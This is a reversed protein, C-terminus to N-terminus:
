SGGAKDAAMQRLVDDIQKIIKDCDAINDKAEEIDSKSADSKSLFDQFYDKAKRYAAQSAKLDTSSNARFDKYLVGLNFYAAGRKSDLKMAKNYSAEAADLDSLGRQAVGLGLHADYDDPRLSLVETFQVKAEDYKRFGLTINGVNMRAETFKPDLEVAKQFNSLAEGLNDRRMQLLGRANYLPPFKADRKEGEDLLLKALDLRSKNKESGELYVLGYLVYTRVNDNDVALANSLEDRADKELKAWASKNATNRLEELLLWAMNNRASVIKGDAEIASEWYQRASKVNGDHFYLEGLNALSPAHAKNVKLAARYEKEAQKSMNCHQYSLGAMYRAEVLKSHEDAVSAFKEAASSCEGSTWGGESQQKYYEVAARYDKRADKSIKRPADSKADSV